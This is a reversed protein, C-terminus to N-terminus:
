SKTYKLFLVSSLPSIKFSVDKTKFDGYETSSSSRLKVHVIILKKAAACLVLYLKTSVPSIM